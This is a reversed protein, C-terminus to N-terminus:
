SLRMEITENTDLMYLNADQQGHKSMMSWMGVRRGEGLWWEEVFDWLDKFGYM